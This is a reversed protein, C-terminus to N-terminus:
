FSIISRNESKQLAFSSAVALQKWVTKPGAFIHEPQRKVGVNEGSRAPTKRTSILSKSRAPQIRNITKCRTNRGAFM